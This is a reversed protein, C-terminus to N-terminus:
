ATNAADFREVSGNPADLAMSLNRGAEHVHELPTDAYRMTM